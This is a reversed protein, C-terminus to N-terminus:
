VPTHQAIASLARLDLPSSSASLQGILQAFVNTPKSSDVPAPQALVIKELFHLDADNPPTLGRVRQNLSGDSLRSTSPMFTDHKYIGSRTVAQKGCGAQHVVRGRAQTSCSVNEGGM